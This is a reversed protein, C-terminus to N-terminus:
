FLTIGGLFPVTQYMIYIQSPGSHSALMFEPLICKTLKKVKSNMMSKASLFNTVALPTMKFILIRLPIEDCNM